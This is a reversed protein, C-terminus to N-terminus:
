NIKSPPPILDLESAEKPPPPTRDPSDSGGRDDSTAGPEKGKGGTFDKLVVTPGTNEVKSETPLIRGLLQAFTKPDDQALNLLYGEVGKPNGKGDVGGARDAASLLADRLAKTSRNPTGKRRGANPPRPEGKKFPM